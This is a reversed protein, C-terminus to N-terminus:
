LSHLTTRCPINSPLLFPFTGAVCPHVKLVPLTFSASVFACAHNRKYSIDVLSMDISASLLSM